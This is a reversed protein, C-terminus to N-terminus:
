DSYGAWKSIWGETPLLLGAMFSNLFPNYEFWPASSCIVAIFVMFLILLLGKLAKREPNENNVWNFFSSVIKAAVITQLVFMMTMQVVLKMEEKASLIMVLPFFFSISLIFMTIMDSQVSAVATLKRIDSKRIKLNTILWTLM